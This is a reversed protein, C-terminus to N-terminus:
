LYNELFPPFIFTSFRIVVLRHANAKETKAAPHAPLSLALLLLAAFALMLAPAVLVIGAVPMLLLAGSPSITVV